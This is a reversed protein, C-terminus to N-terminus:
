KGCPSSGALGSQGLWRDDRSFQLRASAPNGEARVLQRGTFPHWLGLAGDAGLSALLDGSHAFAVQQPV